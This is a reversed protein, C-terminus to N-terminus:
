TAPAGAFYAMVFKDWEVSVAGDSVTKHSFDIIITEEGLDFNDGSVSYIGYGTEDLISDQILYSIMMRTGYPYDNWRPRAHELAAAIDHQWGTAGWHSYLVVASGDSDRFAFNIRDGM